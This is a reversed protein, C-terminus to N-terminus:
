SVHRAIDGIVLWVQPGWSENAGIGIGGLLALGCIIKATRHRGGLMVVATFAFVTWLGLTVHTM